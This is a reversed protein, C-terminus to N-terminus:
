SRSVGTPTPAPGLPRPPQAWGGQIDGDRDAWWDSDTLRYVPKTLARDTHECIMPWNETKLDVVFFREFTNMETRDRQCLVCQM